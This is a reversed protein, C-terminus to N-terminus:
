FCYLKNPKRHLAFCISTVLSPATLDRFGRWDKVPSPAYLFIRMVKLGTLSILKTQTIKPPFGRVAPAIPM